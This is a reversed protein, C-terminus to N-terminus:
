DRARFVDVCYFTGCRVDRADSVAGTDLGPSSIYCKINNAADWPRDQDEPCFCYSEFCWVVWNKILNFNRLRLRETPIQTYL